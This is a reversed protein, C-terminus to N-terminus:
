YAGSTSCSVRLAWRMILRRWSVCGMEYDVAAMGGVASERRGGDIMDAGGVSGNSRQPKGTM